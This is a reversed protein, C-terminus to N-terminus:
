IGLKKYLIEFLTVNPHRYPHDRWYIEWLKRAWSTAWLGDKPDFTYTNYSPSGKKITTCLVSLKSSVCWTSYVPTGEPLEEDRKKNMVRLNM